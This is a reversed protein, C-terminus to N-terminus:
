KLAEALFRSLGARGEEDFKFVATDDLIARCVDNVYQTIQKNADTHPHAILQEIMDMHISLDPSSKVIDTASRGEKIGIEILHLQRKLRAPLIFIGGAEILGIGESKIHHYEPHAHFIGEPYAESKRNNRLIVYVLYRGEHHRALVTATNHQADTRALIDLSPDSYTRWKSILREIAVLLNEKNASEFIFATNYWNLIHCSVDKLNKLKVEKGAQAYMMPMLHAGGQFHEHNLISGGVLPLDSNSGIFFHPFQEVFSLLKRITHDSVEMPRHIKDVVICHRDYYVYPSYQFFWDEGDLELNVTRINSRNPHDDRGFYGLNDECLVCKPYGTQAAKVLKAIDANRKEPKSMNITIELFNDPYQAVWHINTDVFTKKIYDNKIQLNYLYDTAQRPSIRYLNWFRQNIVSPLPTLGGIISGVLREALHAAALKNSIIFERLEELLSDPVQLAKIAAEDVPAPEYADISLAELLRNRAYILDADDLGLHHRAYSLLKDILAPM